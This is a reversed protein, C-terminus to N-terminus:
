PITFRARLTHRQSAPDFERQVDDRDSNGLRTWRTFSNPDQTSGFGYPLSIGVLNSILYRDHFDDWVFIHAQLGAAHLDASIGDRFRREFYDPDENMPFRRGAFGEYCTRHIEIRPPPRRRGAIEILRGFERYGRQIPDLYPDIFLLSNSCRLVPDLHGVYDVMMRPLSVSSSRAAWWPTNRLQDIPAVLPEDPYGSKVASTVIIGGTYARLGRSNLAEACWGDDDAPSNPLMPSYRILRGQAAMKKVFEKTWRHWARAPNRFSDRWEGDRLDRVVGETLMPGRILELRAECEGVNQYSMVDFVDPTIAYDALLAM